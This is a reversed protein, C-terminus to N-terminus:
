FTGYVTTSPFFHGQCRPSDGNKVCGSVLVSEERVIAAYKPGLLVELESEVVAFMYPEDANSLQVYVLGGVNILRRTNNIVGALRKNFSTAVKSLPSGPAAYESNFWTLGRIKGYESDTDVCECAEAAM